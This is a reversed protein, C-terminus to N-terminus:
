RTEGAKVGAAYARSILGIVVQVTAPEWRALWAVISADFTGLDVGANKCAELLHQRNATDSQTVTRVLPAGYTALETEYPGFVPPPNNLPDHM